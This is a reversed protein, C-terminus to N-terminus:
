QTELSTDIVPKESAPQAYEHSYTSPPRRESNQKSSAQVVEESNGSAFSFASKYIPAPPAPPNVRNVFVRYM